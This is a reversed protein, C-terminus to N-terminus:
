LIEEGDAIIFHKRCALHYFTLKSLPYSWVGAFHISEILKSPVVMKFNLFFSHDNIVKLKKPSINVLWIGSFNRGNILSSLIIQFAVYIFISVNGVTKLNCLSKFRKRCKLLKVDMGTRLYKYSPLQRWNSTIYAGTSKFKFNKDTIIYSCWLINEIDLM